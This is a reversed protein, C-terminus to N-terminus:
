NNGYQEDEEIVTINCKHSYATCADIAMIGEKIWPQFSYKFHNHTYPPFEKYKQDIHSWGWSCHWHGCIVTKGEVRRAPNRWMDMGNLWRAQEWDYSTAERFDDLGEYCPVWGHVLIYDGIEAYDICNDSIFDLVPQMVECIKSRKDPNWFVWEDEHCFQCITDVTGNSYHHYSPMCGKRIEDMCDFLLDEHNGAVYILRDQAQLEKIFEFLEMAKPGRDFLDGCICLIHEKNDKDFGNESLGTMLEDFFSHVDSTVFFKM